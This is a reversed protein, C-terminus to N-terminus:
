HESSIDLERAELEMQEQNPKEMEHKDSSQQDMGEHYLNYQDRGNGKSVYLAADAKKLLGDVSDADYPYMAVGVSASLYFSNGSIEFVKRMREVLAQCIAETDDRNMGTLFMIFEDGGYRCVSEKDGAIEAIRNGFEILLGDGVAHGYTDNVGKFKDVDVFFLSAFEARPLSETFIKRVHVLFHNRNPLGTLADHYAIDRIRDEAAQRKENSIKLGQIMHNINDALVGLEDQSQIQLKGSLDGSRVRNAMSVIEFIPQTIRKSFLVIGFSALLAILVGGMAARRYLGNLSDIITDSSRIIVLTWKSNNVPLYITQYTCFFTEDQYDYTFSGSENELARRMVQEKGTPAAFPEKKLVLENRSNKVAKGQDDWVISTREMTKYNFIGDGAEDPQAITNGYQDLLYASCESTGNFRHIFHQITQMNVDARIFGALNLGSFVGQTMTIIMDQTTDSFYVPSIFGSPAKMFEKFFPNRSQDQNAGVNRTVQEGNLNVIALLEYSTEERRMRQILTRQQEISINMLDPYTTIAREFAFAKEISQRINRALMQTVQADSERTFREYDEVLVYRVIAFFAVFSIFIVTCIISVMQWRISLKM